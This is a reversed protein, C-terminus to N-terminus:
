LQYIAMVTNKEKETEMRTLQWKQRHQLVLILFGAPFRPFSVPFGTVSDWLIAESNLWKNM